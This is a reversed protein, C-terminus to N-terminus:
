ESTTSCDSEEDSGDACDISTDCVNDNSVCEGSGCKFEESSCEAATGFLASTRNGVSKIM